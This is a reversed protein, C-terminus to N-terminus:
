RFYTEHWIEELNFEENHDLFDIEIYNKIGGLEKREKYFKVERIIEDGSSLDKLKMKVISRVKISESISFTPHKVVAESFDNKKEIGIIVYYHNNEKCIGNGIFKM